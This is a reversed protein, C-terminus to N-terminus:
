APHAAEFAEVIERPIRGRDGVDYGNRRAWVRIRGADRGAPGSGPGGGEAPVPPALAAPGASVPGGTAARIQEPPRTATLANAGPLCTITVLSEGSPPDDRLQDVVTRALDTLHEHHTLLIIQWRPAFGALVRLAAQAREDDFTMLIDDLVVPLTPEGRDVREQQLQDIAALRLALFVQDATGESLEGSGLEQEDARVVRLTRAGDGRDVARLAVYRSGTLRELLRGADALLPSAHRREYAELERGLTEHQIRAILYREATEAVLALSEQARAHLEGASAGGELDRLHKEVTGVSTWADKDAAAAREHDDRARALDAELDADTRGALESVLDDPEDAPATARLLVDVSALEVAVAALDRHRAAADALTQGPALVVQAGLADLRAAADDRTRAAEDARTALGTVAQDIEAARAQDQASARFRSSLQDVLDALAEAGRDPHLGQRAALGLVEAAFEDYRGAAQASDRLARQAQDHLASAEALVARRETWGRPDTVDALGARRVLVHWEEEAGRLEERRKERDREKEEVVRGLHLAAARQERARDDEALAAAAAGLLSDLDAAPAPAGVQALAEALAVAQARAQDGLGALREQAALLDAHARHAEEAAQQVDDVDERDPVALAAGAWLSAWGARTEEARDAATATATLAAAVRDRAVAAERRLQGRRAALDAHRILQDAVEDARAIGAALVPLLERARQPAPVAGGAGGTGGADAADAGADAAAVLLEWLQARVTRAQELTAQDPLDQQDAEALRSEALDLGRTAEALEEERRALEAEAADLRRGAARVETRSPLVPPAGDLDRAGARRLAERRSRVAEAAAGVAERTLVSASGESGVAALVAKLQGVAAPDPGPALDTAAGHSRRAATLAEEARRLEDSVDTITAALADIQAAVDRPVHLHDLLGATDREDNPGVLGLLLSRAQDSQRGAGDALERARRDDDLRTLCVRDLRTIADGDALVRGDVTLTARTAERDHLEATLRDLEATAATMEGTVTDFAAAQDATLAPGAALLTAQRERLARLTRVHAAARVRQELRDRHAAATRAARAAAEADRHRLALERRADEVHAARTM